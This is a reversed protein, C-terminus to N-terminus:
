TPYLTCWLGQYQRIGIVTGNAAIIPGGSNGPNVPGSVQLAVRGEERSLRSVLASSFTWDLGLAAGVVTVPQGIRSTPSEYSLKLFPTGSQATSIIALDEDPARM